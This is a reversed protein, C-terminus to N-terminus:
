CRAAGQPGAQPGADNGDLPLGTLPQTVSWGNNGSALATLVHAWGTMRHRGHGVVGRSGAVTARTSPHRAQVSPSKARVSPTGGGSPGPLVAAPTRGGGSEPGPGPIWPWRVGHHQRCAPCLLRGFTDMRWGAALARARNDAEGLAAPDAYEAGCGIFDCCTAPLRIRDGIVCHGTVALPDLLPDRRAAPRASEAAAPHRVLGRGATRAAGRDATRAAWRGMAPPRAHRPLTRPSM